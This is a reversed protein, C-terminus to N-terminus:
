SLQQHCSRLGGQPHVRGGWRGWHSAGGAAGACGMTTGAANESQMQSFRSPSIHNFRWLNLHSPDRPWGPADQFIKPLWIVQQWARLRLGATGVGDRAQLLLRPQQRGRPRSPARAAGAQEGKPRASGPCQSTQSPIGQWARSLRAATDPVGSTSIKDQRLSLCFPFSSSPNDQTPSAGPEGDVGPRPRSPLSRCGSATDPHCPGAPALEGLLTM